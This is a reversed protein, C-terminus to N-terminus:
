RVKELEYELYGLNKKYDEVAMQELFQNRQGSASEGFFPVVLNHAAAVVVQLKANVDRCEVPPLGIRGADWYLETIRPESARLLDEVRASTRSGPIKEMELSSVLRSIIPKLEETIATASRLYDEKKVTLQSWLEAMEQYRDSWDTVISAGIDEGELRTPAQSEPLDEAIWLSRCIWNSTRRDDLTLYVFLFIVHADSHGWRREVLENRHYRSGVYEAIVQRVVAAIEAKTLTGNLLVDLAYRKAGGWSVDEHKLVTYRYAPIVKTAIQEFKEFSSADVLQNRPVLLRWGSGTSEVTADSIRQWYILNAEIDCLVLIVPLSHQMWYTMHEDDTRYVFGSDNQEKFYSVGAKVQVAILSGTPKGGETIEVHADIGYDHIGQERFILHLREFAIQTLGVGIRETHQEGRVQM